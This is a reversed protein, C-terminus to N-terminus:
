DAITGTPESPKLPKLRTWLRALDDLLVPGPQTVAEARAIVLLDLPPLEARAQRFAERVLRKIRNREVARKSVRRSVALGLRACAAGGVGYRIQFYRSSLRGAASRLAAFDAARRLRAGRPLGAQSM